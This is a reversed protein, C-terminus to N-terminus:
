GFFFFLTTKWTVIHILSVFFYFITTKGPSKRWSTCPFYVSVSMASLRFGSPPSRLTGRLLVSITYDCATFGYVGIYWVGVRPSNVSLSFDKDNTAQRYDYHTLDPLAASRLYLDCDQLTLPTRTAARLLLLLFCLFQGCLLFLSHICLPLPVQGQGTQNVIVQLFNSNVNVYTSYYNWQRLDVHQNTLRQGGNIQTV